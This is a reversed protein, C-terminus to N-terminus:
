VKGIVLMKPYRDSTILASNAYFSDGSLTTKFSSIEANGDPISEGCPRM